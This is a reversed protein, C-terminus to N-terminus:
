SKAGMGRGVTDGPETDDPSLFSDVNDDLAADEVFRDM